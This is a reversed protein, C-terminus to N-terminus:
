RFEICPVGNEIKRHAQTINEIQSDLFVPEVVGEWEDTDIRFPVVGRPWLSDQTTHFANLATGSGLSRETRAIDGEVVLPTDSDSIEPAPAFAGRRPPRSAGCSALVGLLLFGVIMMALDSRHLQTTSNM